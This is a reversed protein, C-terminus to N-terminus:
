YLMPSRSDADSGVSGGSTSVREGSVQESSGLSPPRSDAASGFSGGSTSSSVQQSGIPRAPAMEETESRTWGDLGTRTLVTSAASVGLALVVALVVVFVTARGARIAKRPVAVKAM